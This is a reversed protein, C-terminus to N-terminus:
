LRRQLQFYLAPVIQFKINDTSERVIFPLLAKPTVLSQPYMRSAVGAIPIVAKSISQTGTYQTCAPIESCRDITIPVHHISKFLNFVKHSNFDNTLKIIWGSREFLSKWESETREFSKQIFFMHMSLLSHKKHSDVCRDIVILSCNNPSYNYIRRLIETAHFNDWDHLVRSLLYVDYDSPIKGIFLDGIIFDIGSNLNNIAAYEVVEQRELCALVMNNDQNGKRIEKLLSGSGGAIDIVRQGNTIEIHKSIGNWDHRAYSAIVRQSLAVADPSRSIKEFTNLESIQRFTNPLWSTVYNDQLWYKCRDLTITQKVLLEGKETTIMRSDNMAELGESSNRIFGKEICFDNLTKKSRSQDDIDLSSTLKNSGSSNNVNEIGVDLLLKLAFSDWYQLSMKVIENSLDKITRPILKVIKGDPSIVGCDESEFRVKSQENYFPELEKFRVSNIIEEGKMDIFFWGEEDKVALQGKHPPRMDFYKKEDPLVDVGNSDILKPSGSLDFVIANGQSNFDGAYSYPGNHLLGLDNIHYYNNDIAMVPCRLFKLGLYDPVISYNGCWKWRQVYAPSGVCNIHYWQGFEDEVAALGEYYGFTKKYRQSYAPKGEHNIHFCKDHLNRVAALKEPEHFSMVHKFRESYIPLGYKDIHYSLEKNVFTKTMSFQMGRSVRNRHWIIRSFM